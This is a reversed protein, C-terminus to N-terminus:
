WGNNRFEYWDFSIINLHQISNFIRVLGASCRIICNSSMWHM